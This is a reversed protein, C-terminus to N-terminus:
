SDFILKITGTIIKLNSLFSPDLECDDGYRFRTWKIKPEQYAHYTSLFEINGHLVKYPYQTNILLFEHSNMVNQIALNLRYKLLYIFAFTVSKKMFDKTDKYYNSPM